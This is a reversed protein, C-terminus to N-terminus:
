MLKLSDINLAFLFNKHLFCQSVFITWTHVYEFKHSVRFKKKNTNNIYSPKNKPLHSNHIYKEWSEILHMKKCSSPMTQNLISWFFMKYKQYPYGKLLIYGPFFICVRHVACMYLRNNQQLPYYLIQHTHSQSKQGCKHVCWSFSKGPSIIGYLKKKTKTESKENQMHFICVLFYRTFAVSLSFFTKDANYCSVYM